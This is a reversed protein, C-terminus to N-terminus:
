FSIYAEAHMFYYAILAAALLNIYCHQKMSMPPRGPKLLGYAHSLIVISIGLFYALLHRDM